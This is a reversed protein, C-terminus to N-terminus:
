AESGRNVNGSEIASRVEPPFGALDLKAISNEPIRLPMGTGFCFRDPGLTTVLHTLHDEPPGWIWSVDWLIRGGEDDTSGFHVQEIFERDAATVVLRVSPSSRVLGRIAWPALDPAGDNPHRQRGDELKVTLQLPLGAEGCAIALALMEAGIPALGYFTPDARVAPVGRDVAGALVRQWNPLGPHVAPVPRLRRNREAVAFLRENGATPDRWYVASLHSVWAEDIGQEDLSALLEAPGHGLQRFPYHGIWTHVDIVM